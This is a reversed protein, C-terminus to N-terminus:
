EWVMAGGPLFYVIVMRGGTVEPVHRSGPAVVVFGEPYGVFRPDGDVAFCLSVEGNPHLHPAGAGRMDVADISCDGLEPQPKAVRGFTLTDTAKKPTLIGATNASLVIERVMHLSSLPFRETLAVRAAEPDSLDLAGVTIAIPALVDRVADLTPVLGGLDGQSGDEPAEGAGVASTSGESEEPRRPAVYHVDSECHPNLYARFTFLPHWAQPSASFVDLATRLDHNHLAISVSGETQVVNEEDVYRGGHTGCACWRLEHRMLLVDRCSPCYLLKM